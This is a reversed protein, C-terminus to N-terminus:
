PYETLNDLPTDSLRSPTKIFFPSYNVMVKEVGM